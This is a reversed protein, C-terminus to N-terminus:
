VKTETPNYPLTEVGERTRLVWLIVFRLARRGRRVSFHIIFFSYHIISPVAYPNIVIGGNRM